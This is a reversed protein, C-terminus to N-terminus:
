NWCEDFVSCYCARLTLAFFADNLQQFLKRNDPTQRLEYLRRNEGARLVDQYLSSIQMGEPLILQNTPGSVAPSGDAASGGASAAQCCADLLEKVNRLPRGKWFVELSEIKAPGVGQNTVNLSVVPATGERPLSSSYGQLMPWSNAAVLRANADAMREMTRGHVIAVCLSTVSVILACAAVSIDIWRHGTKHLESQTELEPTM